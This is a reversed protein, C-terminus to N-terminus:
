KPHTEQKEICALRLARLQPPPHSLLSLLTHPREFRELVIKLVELRTPTRQKYPTFFKIIHQNAKIAAYADAEHEWVWKATVGGILTAIAITSSTLQSTPNLYFLTYINLIVSYFLALRGLKALKRGKVMHGKEHLLITCLIDSTTSAVLKRSVHIKGAKYWANLSSKRCLLFTIQEGFCEMIAVNKEPCPLPLRDIIEELIITALFLGLQIHPKVPVFLMYSVLITALLLALPKTDIRCTLYAYYIELSCLVLVIVALFVMVLVEV